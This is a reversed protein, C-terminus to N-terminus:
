WKNRPCPSDSSAKAVLVCGCDGCMYGKRAPCTDCIKLKRKSEERKASSPVILNGWGQLMYALEKGTM